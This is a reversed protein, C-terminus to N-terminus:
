KSKKMRRLQIYALVLFVFSISALAVFNKWLDWGTAHDIKMKTLVGEGTRPCVTSNGPKCFKMGTFENISLITLGYRFISIYKIWQLFRVVSSIDVLFGGFILTLVAFLTALLNAVGSSFYRSSCRHFRSSRGSNKVSASVLFCLSSSCISTLWICFLFIFFKEVTRQFAMLFYVILSFGIAPITRLPLIDCVIKSIFYTSVHYYGSVNEHVFLVREKIFLDLASLSSFVQNTVIFFIAGSRNKIGTDLSRDLNLYILGTLIALIISMATQLIALSPDRFSNRLTRQCVYAMDNFRSKDAVASMENEDHGMNKEEFVEDQISRCIKSRGYAENLFIEIPGHQEQAPENTKNGNPSSPTSVAPRNGQSVDLIFDAPNNHEECQFGVSAFFSLVENAPGHYLCRGAGVM